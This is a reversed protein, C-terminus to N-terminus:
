YKRKEASTELKEKRKEWDPMVSSLLGFFASSHNYEKLHCLEHVIVYEICEKTAAVLEPNLTIKSDKSCTGWCTRMARLYIKGDYQISAKSVLKQCTTLCEAFIHTAKERYWNDVLEKIHLPDVRTVYVMLKGREMKVKNIINKEVKLVYQRGLYRFSEGSIYKRAPLAPAFREFRRQQTRIWKARKLIKLKIKELAANEPADVVVSTDPYVHIALTRRLTFNIRFCISTNGYPLEYHSGQESISKACSSHALNREPAARTTGSALNTPSIKM